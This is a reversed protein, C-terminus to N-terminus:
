VGMCQESPDLGWARVSAEPGCQVSPSAACIPSMDELVRPLGWQPLTVKYLPGTQFPHSLVQDAAAPAKSPLLRARPGGAGSSHDANEPSFLM